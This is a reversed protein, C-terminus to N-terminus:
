GKALDHISVSEERLRILKGRTEERQLYDPVYKMPKLVERLLLEDIVPVHSAAYKGLFLREFDLGSAVHELIGLLGRLYMADKVLGGGRHVRAAITFAAHHSFGQEEMLRYTDVFEAGNVVAHAALVRAALVRLREADLGGVLYEGLVALGEQLEDYGPLGTHLLRLPQQLGNYYTVLHTGVEHQILADVRQAPVRLEAGVLLRGDSVMLGSYIDHRIEPAPAFPGIAAYRAIEEEAREAFEVAGVSAGRHRTRLPTMELLQRAIALLGDSVGGYLLLGGLLFEPRGIDGLLSLKRDTEVQKERFLHMLTPDEVRETRISWLEHKMIGPDFPLPRYRFRPNREGGSRRFERSAEALNAPTVQLLLDFREDIATLEQDVDTVARVTARRGLVHHHAPRAPTCTLMFRYAARELAVNTKRSVSRLVGPYITDTSSDRYVPKVGLGLMLTGMSELERATFLQRMGPPALRGRAGVEVTPTARLIRSSLLAADLEQVTAELQDDRGRRVSFGARPATEGDPGVQGDENTAWVEILLFAGFADAMVAAVEKIVRRVEERRKPDGSALLYSAAGIVLRETGRDSQGHPSRYVVLFPLPRDVHLRGWGPMSRRVPQGERLRGVIQDVMTSTLHRPRSM